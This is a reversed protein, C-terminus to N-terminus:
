SYSKMKLKCKWDSQNREMGNRETSNYFFDIWVLGFVVNNPFRM